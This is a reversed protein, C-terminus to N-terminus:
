LGFDGQCGVFYSNDARFMRGCEERKVYRDGRSIKRQFLGCKKFGGSFSPDFHPFFVLDYSNKGADDLIARVLSPVMKEDSPDTWLDVCEFERRTKAQRGWMVAYGELRGERYFGFLDKRAHPSKFCYWNLVEATRVNTDFYRGKTRQWLEDFASDAKEVRKVETGTESKFKGGRFKQFIKLPFPSLLAFSARPDKVPLPGFGSRELIKAVAPDPTTDFLLRDESAKLFQFLLKMSQNRHAALVRWTTVAFATVAAGQRQFFTPVRGIFGVITGDNQLMWGRELDPSFAPNEEWWFRLRKRWFDEGRSPEESSSLFHALAHDDEATVTFLGTRKLQTLDSM